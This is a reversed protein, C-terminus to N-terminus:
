KPQVNQESLNRLCNPMKGHQRHHAVCECCKGHRPCDKPCPCEINQNHPCVGKVLPAVSNKEM